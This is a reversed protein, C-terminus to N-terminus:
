DHTAEVAATVRRFGGALYHARNAHHRVKGSSTRLISDTTLVLDALRVGFREVVRARATALVREPALEATRGRVEQVLVLDAGTATAVAFAAAGGRRFSPHLDAICDELEHPYLKRGNLVIRADLRGTVFLEGDRLFGLDGTRLWREGSADGALVGGFRQATAAADDFYGAAISPGSAWVEGVQLEPLMGQSHPEVIRIRHEGRARGCAVVATAASEAAGLEHVRGDELADRDITASRVGVGADGGTLMLTAEALGYCPYLAGARMGYPAFKAVFAAMTATRVPEAGVFALRWGSLDLRPARELERDAITQVCHQFAFNPGGSTVHTAEGIAQLWRLPRQLFTTPAMLRCPRGLFVPQLVNGILGMDHYHPLWGVVTTREDHGFAAAIVRQNAVINAHSVMVGKPDGTSGSTFQVFAVSAGGAADPRARALDDVAAMDGLWDLTRVRALLEPGAGLQVLREHVVADLLLREAGVKHVVRVFAALEAAQRPPRVPVAPRGAALCGLFAIVFELGPEYALVVPGSAGRDHVLWGAVAAALRDLQAFSLRRLAAAAPGHLFEFAEHEGRREAHERLTRVISEAAPVARRTSPASM